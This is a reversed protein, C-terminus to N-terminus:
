IPSLSPGAEALEIVCEAVDDHGRTVPPGAHSEKKIPRGLHDATMLRWGM